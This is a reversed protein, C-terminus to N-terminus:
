SARRASGRSVASFAQKWTQPSLVSGALPGTAAVETRAAPAARHSGSHAGRHSGGTRRAPTAQVVELLEEVPAEALDALDTVEVSGLSPVLTLEAGPDLVDEVDLEDPDLETLVSIQQETTGLVLVRSGVTVVSVSSTRSLAQRHVVHVLAGSNGRFKRAGFRALLLLLGVVISLSVVLRITLELM